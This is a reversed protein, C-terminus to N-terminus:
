CAIVEKKNKGKLKSKRKKKKNNKPKTSFDELSTNRYKQGIKRDREREERRREQKRKKETDKRDGHTFKKPVEPGHCQWVCLNRERNTNKSHKKKKTVSKNSVKM